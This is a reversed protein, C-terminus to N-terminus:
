QLFVLPQVFILLWQLLQIFLNLGVAEMEYGLVGKEAILADRLLADKM